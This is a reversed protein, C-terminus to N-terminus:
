SDTEDEESATTELMYLLAARHSQLSEEPLQEPFPSPLFVLNFSKGAQTM